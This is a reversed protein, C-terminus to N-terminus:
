NHKPESFSERQRWMGGTGMMSGKTTGERVKLLSWKCGCTRGHIRGSPVFFESTKQDCVSGAGNVVKPV